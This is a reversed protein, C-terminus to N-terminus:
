EIGEYVEHCKGDASKHNPLSGRDVGLMRRGSISRLVM